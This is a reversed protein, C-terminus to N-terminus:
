WDAAQFDKPLDSYLQLVFDSTPYIIGRMNLSPLPRDESRQVTDPSRALASAIENAASLYVLAESRKSRDGTKQGLRFMTVGLNNDVKVLTDMFARDDPRDEPHLIGLAARRSELRDRLTLYSAQAAFYDGRKYFANGLAYLLNRPPQGVPNLPGAGPSQPATSDEAGAAAAAPSPSGSAPAAGPASSAGRPSAPAPSAIQQGAPVAEPGLLDVSSPYASADEAAAFTTLADKYDGQAYQVYGIKYTLLPTTFGNDAASQYQQAADQLNGEIYYSLDGLAAYPRGYLPGKDILGMRQNSEVLRVAQQLETQAPLYQKQRYYYEGLRTHTDIEISLRRVTLPERDRTLDLIQRTADLAKKEDDPDQVLRFYRALNYHVALIGHRVSDARLLVDQAFALRRHDVLYGGLEAFADPDVKVEPRAAYFARLREVEEANDTRIFYRLMRFLLEDRAGFREILTAYALRAPEYKAHDREAWALYNDGSALLAEYDYMHIDLYGKLLGEAKAYDALRTSELNAYDLIGKKDGPWSKLLDDYKQEALQYARRDAFGEAYRYYWDKMPWVRTARAFRENAVTFRDNAIQAYGARYNTLAFLPRYIFNYGLFGFVAGALVTIAVTRVLPLFNERFAYAFTRQEAEFAMGSKKEYGAPIRIRKGSIRGALAAIEQASAGSVLLGLLASLDPGAVAGEGVLDQVAIKVNRPLSELTQKLQAFQEPTLEIEGGAGTLDPTPAAAPAARPRPREREARRPRPPPPVVAPREEEMGPMAFPEAGGSEAGGAGGPMGFQGASEPLSFQDLNLDALGEDGESLGELGGAAEAAGPPEMAFPGETAEGTEEGAGASPEGLSTTELDFSPGEEAPLSGTEGAVGPEEVPAELPAEMSPSSEKTTEAGAEAGAEVGPEAFTLDDLSPLDFSEASPEASPESSPTELSGGTPEEFSAGGLDTPAEAPAEGTGADMPFSLSGLDEFAEGGTSPEGGPEEASASAASAPEEGPEGAELGSGLSELGELAQLGELGAGEEPVTEMQSLDAQLNEPEGGPFSFAEEQSAEAPTLPERPRAAPAAPQELDEIPGAASEEGFLSAFDLGEDQAGGPTQSPAAESPAQGGEASLDGLSSFIDDLSESEVTGADGGGQAEPGAASEGPEGPAGSGADFDPGLDLADLVSESGAGEPAEAAEGPVEEITESRAARIAPEDGLSSLVQAFREIDERRPM